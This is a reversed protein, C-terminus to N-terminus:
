VFRSTTTVAWDECKTLPTVVAPNLPFPIETFEKVTVLGVETVKFMSMLGSAVASRRDIVTVVLLSTM